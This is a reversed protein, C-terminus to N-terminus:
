TALLKLLDLLGRDFEKEKQWSQELPTLTIQGGMEGVMQGSKGDLLAEIAALGLKSALLRDRATPSGGRQVHGLICVRYDLGTKQGVERAIAQTRGPTGGEAVLVILSKKGIEYGQKLARCLGDIDMEVEPILIEDAGSAIGTHLAIFGRTRGMVEVFFLRELSQATDRIRDISELATNLATDFGLSFDTGYVDNDITAPVGIVKVSGEAALAAAGRFTGDGGLTILGDVHEERLFGIAKQRGEPTFMEQCRSTGLFTGGLQLINSVERPGLKVVERSMLGAFGRKIGVVELGKLSACRVIARICANMGPADGGSTLVAVRRM